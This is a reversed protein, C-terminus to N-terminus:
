NTAPRHDTVKFWPARQTGSYESAVSVTKANSRVVRHWSNCILVLDGAKVTERSYATATGDAIQQERVRRWYTLDAEAIALRDEFEVRRAGDAPLGALNRQYIRVTDALRDIRNAVTIPNNRSGTAAAAITASTSAEIAARDHELSAHFHSLARGRRRRDAAESHHGILIPQGLPISDSIQKGAAMRAESKQQEGEARVTLRDVREESRFVRRQELEERDGVTADITVEVEFGAERLRRVTLEILARKPAVDRSRPVYWCSISRGWRWGLAKVVEASGDGRSTGDLVTGGAETHEIILPSM